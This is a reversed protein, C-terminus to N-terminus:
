PLAPMLACDTGNVNTAWGAIISTDLVFSMGINIVNYRVTVGVFVGSYNYAQIGAKLCNQELITNGSSGFVGAPVGRSQTVTNGAVYNDHGPDGSGGESIPIMDGMTFAAGNPNAIDVDFTNNTLRCFSSQFFSVADSGYNSGLIENQDVEVGICYDTEIATGKGGGTEVFGECINLGVYGGTTGYSLVGRAADHIYNNHIQSNTGQNLIANDGAGSVDCNRVVVGVLNEPIVICPSTTIRLGEIIQGNSTATIPGSNTFTNITPGANGVPPPPPPPPPAGVAQITPGVATVMTGTLAQNYPTVECSIINLNDDQTTTYTNLTQDPEIYGSPNGPLVTDFFRWRRALLADPPVTVGDDCILTCGPVAPGGGFVTIQPNTTFYPAQAATILWNGSLASTGDVGGLRPTIRYSINKGATGTPIPDLTLSAGAQTVPAGDDLGDVRRQFRYEDAAPSTPGATVTLSGGEVADGTITIPPTATFAPLTASPAIITISNVSFSAVVTGDAGTILEMVDVPYTEDGSVTVYTLAGAGVNVFTSPGTKRRWQVARTGDPNAVAPTYTLTNGRVANGAISGRQIVVPGVGASVDLAVLWENTFLKRLRLSSRRGKSQLAGTASYANVGGEPVITVPGDGWQVVELETGIKSPVTAHAPIFLQVPTSSDMVLVTPTRMNTLTLTHDATYRTVQVSDTGIHNGRDFAPNVKGDITPELAGLQTNALVVDLVAEEDAGSPPVSTGDPRYLETADASWRAFYTPNGQEDVIGIYQDLVPDWILYLYPIRRIEM